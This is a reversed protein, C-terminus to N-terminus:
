KKLYVVRGEKASQRAAELIEVVIMNNELSSLDTPKVIIEGQIVAALYAFPDHCPKSPSPVAQYDEKKEPSTRTKLGSRDAIMYGHQGYIEIDKRGYPWNWSAQIIGQTKLYTVVITAEDDVKPYVDPKIQQTVAFVSTPKEGKMLWTLLNAGYCGFDILAGGGNMVPDTLWDLFEKNVGIEKPGQHGDHVVVKRLDGISDLTEFAKHHSGYWTTEYNTLLHINHKLALAQMEKAHVLSVALPKEVMVHIKRPACANVTELHEYISNFACVAEPKCKNLMEELSPYILTFPLNYQKLYREALERNAEAVGVIEIDGDKARNLLWHVHTHTLGAIGIRLPKASQAIGAIALYFFLMSFFIRPKM